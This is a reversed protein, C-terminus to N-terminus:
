ALRAASGPSPRVQFTVRLRSNQAASRGFYGGSQRVGTAIRSGAQELSQRVSERPLLPIAHVPLQPQQQDRAAADGRQQHRRQDRDEQRPFRAFGAVADQRPQLVAKGSDRATRGRGFGPILRAVEGEATQLHINGLGLGFGTQDEGAGEIGTAPGAVLIVQREIGDGADSRPHHVIAEAQRAQGEVLGIVDGELRAERGGAAFLQRRLFGHRHFQAVLGRQHTEGPADDQRALIRRPHRDGRHVDGAQRQLHHPHAVPQQRLNLVVRHILGGDVFPVLLLQLVVLARQDPLAGHRHRAALIVAHHRQNRDAVDELVFLGPGIHQDRAVGVLGDGVLIVAALEGGLPHDGGIDREGAEGAGIGGGSRPQRDKGAGIVPGRRQRADLQGQHRAVVVFQSGGDGVAAAPGIEVGPQQAGAAAVLRHHHHGIAVSAIEGEQVQATRGEVQGVTAHAPAAAGARHVGPQGGLAADITGAFGDMGGRQQAITNARGQRRRQGQHRLTGVADLDAADGHRAVPQRRAGGGPAQRQGGAGRMAAPLHRGEDIGLRGGDAPHLEIHGVEHRLAQFHGQGRQVLGDRRATIEPQPGLRAKQIARGGAAQGAIGLRGNGGVGIGERLVLAEAEAPHVVTEGLGLDAQGHGGGVRRADGGDAAIGARQGVGGQRELGGDADRDVLRTPAGGVTRQIDRDAGMVGSDADPRHEVATRHRLIGAGTEFHDRHVGAALADSQGAQRGAPDALVGAILPELALAFPFVLRHRAVPQDGAAADRDPSAACQPQLLRQGGPGIAQGDGIRFRARCRGIAEIGAPGRGARAVPWVANGDGGVFRGIRGARHRPHPDLGVRVALRQHHDRAVPHERGLQHIDRRAAAAHIHRDRGVPTRAGIDQDGGIARHARDLAALRHAGDAHGPQAHVISRAGQLDTDAAAFADTGALFHRQGDGDLPKAAFFGEEGQRRHIFADQLEGIELRGIRRAIIEALPPQAHQHAVIIAAQDPGFFARHARQALATVTEAPAPQRHHGLAGHRQEATDDRHARVADGIDGELNGVEVAAQAQHRHGPAGVLQSM